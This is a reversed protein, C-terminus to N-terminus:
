RRFGGQVCYFKPGNLRGLRLHAWYLTGFNAVKTANDIAQKKEFFSAPNLLDRQLQEVDAGATGGRAVRQALDRGPRGEHHDAQRKTRGPCSPSDIDAARRGVQMVFGAQEAGVM